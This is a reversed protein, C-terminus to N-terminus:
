LRGFDPHKHAHVRPQRCVDDLTNSKMSIGSLTNEFRIQDLEKNVGIGLMGTTPEFSPPRQNEGFFGLCSM